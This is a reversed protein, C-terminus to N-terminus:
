IKESTPKDQDKKAGAIQRKVSTKSKRTTNPSSNEHVKYSHEYIM